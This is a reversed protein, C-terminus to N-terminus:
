SFIPSVAFTLILNFDSTLILLPEPVWWPRNPCAGPGCGHSAECCAVQMPQVKCQNILLEIQPFAFRHGRGAEMIHQVHWKFCMFICCKYISKIKLAQQSHLFPPFVRCFFTKFKLTVLFYLILKCDWCQESRNTFM